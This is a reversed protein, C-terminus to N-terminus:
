RDEFTTGCDNCFNANLPLLSGCNPCYKSESPIRDVMEETESEEPIEALEEKEEKAEKPKKVFNRGLIAIFVGIFQLGTNYTFFEQLRDIYPITIGTLNAIEAILWIILALTGFTLGIGVLWKGFRAWDVMIFIAGVIVAAGGTNAIWRLIEVLINLINKVWDLDPPIQNSIYDRLFEYVGISGIVSSMIMLIGGIILLAFGLKNRM